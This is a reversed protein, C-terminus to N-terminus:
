RRGRCPFPCWGRRRWRSSCSCRWLTAGCTRSDYRREGDVCFGWRRWSPSPPAKANAPWRRPLTVGDSSHAQLTKKFFIVRERPQIPFLEYRQRREWASVHAERPMTFPPHMYNSLRKSLRKTRSVRFSRLKRGDYVFCRHIDMPYAKLMLRVWVHLLWM